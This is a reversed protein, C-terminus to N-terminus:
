CSKKLKWYYKKNEHALVNFNDFSPLFKSHLLHDCIASNNSPKVKKETLPSVGIHKGSRIDLHRISEGYYPENCLDRKFKYVAGSILDKPISPKYCFSNSLRTQCKAVIELKWCNLAGKLAQQLKTRTQLSIIGLCPLVLLLPKQEVIPLNEKVLHINNLSKKFCKDIFNERESFNVWYPITDM